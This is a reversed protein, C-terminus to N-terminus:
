KIDGKVKTISEVNVMTLSNIINEIDNLQNERCNVVFIYKNM